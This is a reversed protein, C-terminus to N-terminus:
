EKGMVWFGKLSSSVMRRRERLLVAFKRGKEMGNCSGCEFLNYIWCFKCREFFYTKFSYHTRTCYRRTNPYGVINLYKKRSFIEVFSNISPFLMGTNIANTHRLITVAIPTNTTKFIEGATLDRRPLVAIYSLWGQARGGGGGGGKEGFQGIWGVLPAHLSRHALISPPFSFPPVENLRSFFPSPPPPLPSASPKPSVHGFFFCSCVLRNWM